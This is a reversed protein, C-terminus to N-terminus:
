PPPLGLGLPPCLPAQEHLIYKHFGSRLTRSPDEAVLKARDQHAEAMVSLWGEDAYFFLKAVARERCCRATSVEFWPSAPASRGQGRVLAQPM